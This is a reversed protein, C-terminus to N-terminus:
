VLSNYIELTKSCMRDKSYNDLVNKRGQRGIADLVKKDLKTIMEISNALDSVSESRFLWGTKEPVITETSGGLNSALIPKEMSSAEILTKSLGERWSPLIVIDINLYLEYM